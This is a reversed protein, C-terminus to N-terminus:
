QRAPRGYALLAGISAVLLGALIASSGALLAAPLLFLGTVFLLAGVAIAPGGARSPRPPVGLPRGRSAASAEVREVFGRLDAEREEEELRREVRAVAEEVAAIEGVTRDAAETEADVAREVAALDERVGQEEVESELEELAEVLVEVPPAFSARCVLCATAGPAHAAGCTPCRPIGDREAAM